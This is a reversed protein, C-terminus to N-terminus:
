HVSGLKFMPCVASFFPVCTTRNTPSLSSPMVEVSQKWLGMRRSPVQLLPYLSKPIAKDSTKSLVEGKRDKLTSATFVESRPIWPDLFCNSSGGTQDCPGSFYVYHYTGPMNANEYKLCFGRRHPGEGPWVSDCVTDRREVWLEDFCM